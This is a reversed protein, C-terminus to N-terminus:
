KIHSKQLPCLENHKSQNNAPHKSAQTTQPRGRSLGLLAPYRHRHRASGRGGRNDINPWANGEGASFVKALVM